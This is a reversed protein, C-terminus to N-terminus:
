NLSFRSPSFSLSSTLCFPSPITFALGLVPELLSRLYSTLDFMSNSLSLLGSIFLIVWASSFTAKINPIVDTKVTHHINLHNM